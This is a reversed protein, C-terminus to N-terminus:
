ENSGEDLVELGAWEWEGYEDSEWTRRHWQGDRWEVALLCKGPPAVRQKGVFYFVLAWVSVEGTDMRTTQLKVILQIPIGAQPPGVAGELTADASDARVTESGEVLRLGSGLFASLSQIWEAHASWVDTTTM